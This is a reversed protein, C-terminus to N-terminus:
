NNTLEFRLQREPARDSAAREIIQWTVGDPGRLVVSREGFENEQPASMTLAAATAREIVRDLHPTWLSHMTIGSFGMRQEASRDRAHARDRNVFFKLKGAIDNPSVFGVYWHSTGPAMQFVARPGAQWAGDLSAPAEQRFGLVREYYDTVEEIDGDIIFDHHTFESTQLPAEPSITGYGPITYGYRQYFVHNFEAGYVAMERVGVRRQIVNLPGKDTMDYLDDYVPATVLWPEGSARADSFIDHLRFIDRTRMVAMRQGITEPPALGVGEGLGQAWQVIRLLGHADIEGSQMRIVRAASEVGYLSAGRAASLQVERVPRFGFQEFYKVLRDADRTGVVVEYVGSIGTDPLPAAAAAPADRTPENASPEDTSSDDASPTAASPTAAPLTAASPEDAALPTAPAAAAARLDFFSLALLPLVFRLPPASSM